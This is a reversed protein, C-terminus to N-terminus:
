VEEAVSAAVLAIEADLRAVEDNVDVLGAVPPRGLDVLNAMFADGSTGEPALREWAARAEAFRRVALAPDGSARAVLGQLRALRAALTHPSDQSGVPEFPARSLEEAATGPDGAAALAEALGLRALVRPIAGDADLAHRFAAVAARAEGAALAIVGRDYDAIGARDTHRAADSSREAVAMAEAHRGLRSLAYARAAAVQLDLSRGPSPWGAIRDCIVLVAELEGLCAHASAALLLALTAMDVRGGHRAILAASEAAQIGEAFLGQRILATAHAHRLEAALVRDSPEGAEALLGPVVAPDGAVSEAWAVGAVALLRVEPADLGGEEVLALARRGAALADAPYCLTTHLWGARFAHAAALGPLDGIRDMAAVAHDFASDMAARDARWAALDAVKMWLDISERDASDALGLADHLYVEAEDAAGLARAEDAALTLYRRAQEPEGAAHLHVAVEAARRNPRRALLDALRLHADAREADGMEAVWADRVMEHTFGLRRQGDRRLADSGAFVSVMEELHEEGVAASTESPELSRGAVAVVGALMRAWAPIDGMTARALGRAGEAPSRGEAAARAGLVALLPNGEAMLGVQIALGPDLAPSAGAVVTAIEAEELPGLMVEHVRVGAARIRDFSRELTDERGVPRASVVMLVASGALRRGAHAVLAISSDDAAHLDELVVVLPRERACADLAQSVADFLRSRELEPVTISPTPSSHWRAEVAPSLRALDGAWSGTVPTLAGALEAIAESWPALPPAGELGVLAAGRVVVAGDAAARRCLAAIVTSKGIGGEGTVAVVAGAGSRAAAWARTLTDLAGGRGAVAPEGEAGEDLHTPALAQPEPPARLGRVLARTEDSPALGLESALAARLRSYAAVAEGSEGADILRRMLARHLSERLREREVARRTWRIAAARDGSEEAHGALREFVEVLRERYADQADLVWEDALDTLLPGGAIAAARELARVDGAATLRDFEEVDIERPLDPALGAAARETLLYDGGGVADLAGRVAWLASRLSARASTELVEPWFRGALRTRPHAVPHLLLYALLARPRSPLPPLPRGDIEVRMEGFLIARLM